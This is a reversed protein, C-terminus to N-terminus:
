AHVPKPPTPDFSGVLDSLKEIHHRQLYDTMGALVKSWV